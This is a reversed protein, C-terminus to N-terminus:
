RCKTLRMEIWFHCIGSHHESVAVEGVYWFANDVGDITENTNQSRVIKDGQFHGPHFSTVSSKPSGLGGRSTGHTERSTESFSRPTDICARRMSHLIPYM